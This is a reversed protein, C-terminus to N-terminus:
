CMLEKYLTWGTYFGRKVLKKVNHIQLFWIEEAIKELAKDTDKELEESQKELLSATEELSSLGLWIKYNSCTVM